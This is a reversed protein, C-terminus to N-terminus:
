ISSGSPSCRSCAVMASCHCLVGTRCPWRCCSHPRCCTRTRTCCNSNGPHREDVDSMHIMHSKSYTWASAADALHSWTANVQLFCGLSALPEICEADALFVAADAWLLYRVLVMYGSYSLVADKPSMHFRACEKSRLCPFRIPTARCWPEVQAHAAVAVEERCPGHRPQPGPWPQERCVGPVDWAPRRPKFTLELVESDWAKAEARMHRPLAHATKSRAATHLSLFDIPDINPEPNTWPGSTPEKRRFVRISPQPCGSVLVGAQFPLPSEPLQPLLPIMPRKPPSPPHAM